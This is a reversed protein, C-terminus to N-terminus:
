RKKRRRLLPFLVLVGLVAAGDGGQCGRQCGQQACDIDCACDADCETTVDCVCPCEPDCTCESLADDSAGDCYFTSDCLCAAGTGPGSPGSPGSPNGPDDPGGPNTPDDLGPIVPDCVGESSGVLGMCQQDSSPCPSAATPNCLSMCVGGGGPKSVCATGGACEGGSWCPDGPQATGGPYCAGGGSSLSYCQQGDGCTDAGTPECTRRCLYGNASGDGSCVLGDKCLKTACLEGDGAAPVCYGTSADLEACLFESGCSTPQAPNCERWCSGQNTDADNLCLLGAACETADECPEHEQAQGPPFCAGSGGQLGVCRAGGTCDSTQPNCEKRCIGGEGAYLCTAGTECSATCAEGISPFGKRVCTKQNGVSRCQYGNTCDSDASCDASCYTFNQYTICPKAGTCDASSDCSAGLGGPTGPYLAAIGQFDDAQPTTYDGGSAAMVAVCSNSCGLYGSLCPHGLGVAHGIEHLLTEEVATASWGGQVFGNILIDADYFGRDNCNWSTWPAVTVGLTGGAGSGTVQMWESNTRVFFIEHNDSNNSFDGWRATDVATFTESGDVVMNSASVATWSAAANQAAQVFQTATIGNGGQSEVRMKLQAGFWKPATGPTKCGCSDSGEYGSPCGSANYGTITWSRCIFEYAWAPSSLGCALATAVILRM